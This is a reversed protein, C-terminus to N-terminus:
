SGRSSGRKMILGFVFGLVAFLSLPPSISDSPDSELFVFLPLSFFLPNCIVHNWVSKAGFGEETTGFTTTEEEESILSDIIQILTLLIFFMMPVSLNVGLAAVIETKTSADEIQKIVAKKDTKKTESRPRFLV